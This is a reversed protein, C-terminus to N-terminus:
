STKKLEKNVYPIDGSMRMFQHKDGGRSGAKGEVAYCLNYHGVTFWGGGRGGGALGGIKRNL